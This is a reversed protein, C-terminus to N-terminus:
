ITKKTVVLLSKEDINFDICKELYCKAWNGTKWNEGYAADRASIINEPHLTLHAYVVNLVDLTYKAALSMAGHHDVESLKEFESLATKLVAPLYTPAECEKSNIVNVYNKKLNEKKDSDFSEYGSIINSIIENTPNEFYSILQCIIKRDVSDFRSNSVREDLNYLSDLHKSYKEQFELVDIKNDQVEEVLNFITQMRQYISETIGYGNRDFACLDSIWRAKWMSMDNKSINNIGQMLEKTTSEQFIIHRLHAYEPYAKALLADQNANFNSAGPIFKLGDANLQMVKSLMLESDSPFNPTLDKYNEILSRSPKLIATLRFVEREEETLTKCFNRLDRFSQFSLKFEDPQTKIFKTYASFESQDQELLLQVRYLRLLSRESEFGLSFSSKDSCEPSLQTKETNTLIQAIEDDSAKLTYFDFGNKKSINKLAELAHRDLARKNAVPKYSVGEKSPSHQIKNVMLLGSQSNATTTSNQEAHFSLNQVKIM